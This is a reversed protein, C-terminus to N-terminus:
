ETLPVIKTTVTYDGEIAGFEYMPMFELVENAPITLDGNTSYVYQILDTEFYFESARSWDIIDQSGYIIADVPVLWIKAGVCQTALLNFGNTCYDSMTSYKNFDIGIPLNEDVDDALIVIGTYHEDEYGGTNPYYVALYGSPVGSVEFSDGVVTYTIEIESNPIASWLTTDKKTVILTNVYSTTILDTIGHGIERAESNVNVDVDFDALNTASVLGSFQPSELYGGFGTITAPTLDGTVEIPSQIDFDQQIQGYYSILAANVVVLGLLGVIVFTMLKKKNINKKM